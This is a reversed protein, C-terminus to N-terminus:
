SQREERKRVRVGGRLKGKGQDIVGKTYKQRDEWETLGEGEGGTWKGEGGWELIEEGM